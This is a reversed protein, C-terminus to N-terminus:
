SNPMLFQAAEEAGAARCVTALLKTLPLFHELPAQGHLAALAEEWGGDLLADIWEPCVTESARMGLVSLAQQVELLEQGGDSDWRSAPLNASWAANYLGFWYLSWSYARRAEDPLLPGLAGGADSWMQGLLHHQWHGADRFLAAAPLEQQIRTERARSVAERREAVVPAEPLTVRLPPPVALRANPHPAGDNGARPLGSGDLAYLKNMVRGHAEMRRDNEELSTFMVGPPVLAELAAHFHPSAGPERGFFFFDGWREEIEARAWTAELSDVDADFCARWAELAAPFEGQDLLTAWDTSAM